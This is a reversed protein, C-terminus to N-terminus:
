EHVTGVAIVDEVDGIWEEEWKFLDVTEREMVNWDIM